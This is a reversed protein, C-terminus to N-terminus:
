TLVTAGVGVGDGLKGVKGSKAACHSIEKIFGTCIYNNIEYFSPTMLNDHM